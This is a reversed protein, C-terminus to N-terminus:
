LVSQFCAAIADRNARVQEYQPHETTLEAFRLTVKGHRPHPYIESAPFRHVANTWTLIGGSPPDSLAHFQVHPAPDNLAFVETVTVCGSERSAMAAMVDVPNTPEDGTTFALFTLMLLAGLM